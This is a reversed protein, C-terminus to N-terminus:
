PAGLCLIKTNESFTLIIERIKFACFNLVYKTPVLGLYLLNKLGYVGLFIVVSWVQEQM